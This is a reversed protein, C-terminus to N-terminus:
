YRKEHGAFVCYLKLGLFPFPFSLPLFECKLFAASWGIPDMIARQGKM